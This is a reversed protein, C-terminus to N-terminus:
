VVSRWAYKLDKFMTRMFLDGAPKPEPTTRRLLAHASIAFAQRWYWRRGRAVFEEHLDGLVMDREDARALVRRLLSEAAAPPRGGANM